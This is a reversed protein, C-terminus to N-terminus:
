GYAARLDQLKPVWNKVREPYRFLGVEPDSIMIMIDGVAIGTREWFAIAYFACQMYYGEIESPEKYRSTSKWDMVRIKGDLEAILDVTGAIKLTDSWLMTEMAHIDGIEDLVEKCHLHMEYARDPIKGTIVEGLLYHENMEHFRSGDNAANRSIRAAEKEGVREKWQDLFPNEKKSLVTTISPYM